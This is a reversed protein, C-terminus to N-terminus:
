DLETTAILKGDPDVICSYNCDEGSCGGGYFVIKYDNEMKMGFGQHQTDRKPANEGWEFFKQYWEKVKQGKIYKDFAESYSLKEENKGFNKIFEEDSMDLNIDEYKKIHKM